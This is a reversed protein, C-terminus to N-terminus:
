KKGFLSPQKMMDVQTEGPCGNQRAYSIESMEYSYSGNDKVLFYVTEPEPLEHGNLKPVEVAVQTYDPRESCSQAFDYDGFFLENDDHLLGHWKVLSSASRSEMHSWPEIIWEHVFDQPQLAVPDLRTVAKGDIRYHLIYTRRWGAELADATLELLFENPTVKADGDSDITFTHIRSFLPEARDTGAAIRFLRYDLGNWVSACSVSFWSVYLLRDGSADPNSFQVGYLSNGHESAGAGEFIRVRGNASFRYVYVVTDVGCPVAVSAKVVLADEFEHPRYVVVPPVRLNSRHLEETLRTELGPFSRNLDSLNTPLRADIWDRLVRRYHGLGAIEIEPASQSLRALERLRSDGPAEQGFLGSASVLLGTVSLGSQLLRFV